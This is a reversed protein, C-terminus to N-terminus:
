HGRGKEQLFPLRTRNFVVKNFRIANVDPVCFCTGCARGVPPLLVLYIGTRTTFYELVGAELKFVRDKGTGVNVLNHMPLKHMVGTCATLNPLEEAEASDAVSPVTEDLNDPKAFLSAQKARVGEDSASGMTSRFIELGQSATSGKRGAGASGKHLETARADGMRSSASSKRSRSEREGDGTCASEETRTLPSHRLPLQTGEVVLSPSPQTSAGRDTTTSIPTAKIGLPRNHAHKAISGAESHSKRMDSNHSVVASASQKSPVSSQHPALKTGSISLPESHSNSSTKAHGSSGRRTRGLGPGSTGQRAQRDTVSDEIGTDSTSSERRAHEAFYSNNLFHQLAKVTARNHTSEFGRHMSGKTLLKASRFGAIDWHHNLFMRLMKITAPTVQGDVPVPRRQQTPQLRTVMSNLFTQLASVAVPGFGTGRLPQQRVGATDWNDNLFRCLLAQTAADFDGSVDLPETHSTAM